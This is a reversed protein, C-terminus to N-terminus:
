VPLKYTKSFIADSHVGYIPNRVHIVVPQKKSEEIRRKYENYRWCSFCCIIFIIIPLEIITKLDTDIYSETQNNKNFLELIRTHNM